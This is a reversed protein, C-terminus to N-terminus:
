LRLIREEKAILIFDIEIVEYMCRRLCVLWGFLTIWFATQRGYILM